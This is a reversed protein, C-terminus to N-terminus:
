APCCQIADVNLPPAPPRRPQAARQVPATQILAPNKAAEQARQWASFRPGTAYAGGQIRRLLDYSIPTTLAPSVNASASVDFKQAIDKSSLEEEPNKAFFELVRTALSGPMPTYNPATLEFSM